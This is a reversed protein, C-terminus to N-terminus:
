AEFLREAIEDVIGQAVASGFDHEVGDGGVVNELENDAVIAGPKGVPEGLAGKLAERPGVAGPPPSAATKSQRDHGGDRISM